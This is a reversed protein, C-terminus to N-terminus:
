AESMGLGGVGELSDTRKELVLVNRFFHWCQTDLEQRLSNFMILLGHHFRYISGYRWESAHNLWRPCHM